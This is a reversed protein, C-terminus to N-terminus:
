TIAQHLKPNEVELYGQNVLDELISRYSAESYYQRNNKLLWLLAILYESPLLRLNKIAAARLLITRQTRMFRDAAKSWLAVAAGIAMVAGGFAGILYVIHVIQVWRGDLELFMGNSRALGLGSAVIAAAALWSSKELILKLIGALHEL